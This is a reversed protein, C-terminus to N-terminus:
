AVGLVRVSRARRKVCAGAGGAAASRGIRGRATPGTLAPGKQRGAGGRKRPRPSSLKDRGEKSPGGGAGGPCRDFCAEARRRLHIRCRQEAMRRERREEAEALEREVAPVIRALNNKMVYDNAGAKMAAVATEESVTGSMIIFPIDLGSDQMLKLAAPATFQPMSYDAIIVDWTGNELASKMAAPTDVRKHTPDFGGKRLERLLLMSDDESDEAILV